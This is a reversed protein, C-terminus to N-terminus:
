LGLTRCPTARLLVTLAPNLGSSPHLFRRGRGASSDQVLSEPTYRRFALHTKPPMPLNQAKAGKAPSIVILGASLLPDSPHVNARGLCFDAGPNRAM